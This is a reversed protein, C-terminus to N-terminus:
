FNGLVASNRNARGDSRVIGSALVHPLHNIRVASENQHMHGSRHLNALLAVAFTEIGLCAGANEFLEGANGIRVLNRRVRFNGDIRAFQRGLFRRLLNNQM